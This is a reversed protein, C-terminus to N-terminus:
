SLLMHIMEKFEIGKKKCMMPFLSLETMGPITNAELVYAVGDESLRFDVRSIDKLELYKHVMLAIDQLKKILKEDELFVYDSMGKTYKSEYDYIGKKPKIEVPPLAEGKLIGVTIDRGIIYEEILVKHSISLVERVANELEDHDKVLFLGVSSGQDAPKVVAPFSHWEFTEGRRVCIGAPVPIRHFTLIKKTIDKDMALCSGLVGSGTYPIGLIDLLGQVRGDEGYTGHLAIFVKDPKIELLKQCLNEELDLPIAEHGLERIARLVAEGTKLSIEREESRGGMLVVVRM